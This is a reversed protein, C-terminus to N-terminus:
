RRLLSIGECIGNARTNFDSFSHLSFLLFFRFIHLLVLFRINSWKRPAPRAPRAHPLLMSRSPRLLWVGFVNRCAFSHFSHRKTTTLSRSSRRRPRSANTASLARLNHRRCRRSIFTHGYSTSSSNANSYTVSAFFLSFLFWHSAFISCWRRRRRRWRSRTHSIIRQCTACMCRPEDISVTRVVRARETHTDGYNIARRIRYVASKGNEREEDRWKEDGRDGDNPQSFRKNHASQISEHLIFRVYLNLELKLDNPAKPPQRQRRKAHPVKERDTEWNRGPCKWWHEIFVCQVGCRAVVVATGTCWFATSRSHPMSLVFVFIQQFLTFANRRRAVASFPFFFFSIRRGMGVVHSHTHTHKTLTLVSELVGSSEESRRAPRLAHQSCLLFCFILRVFSGLLFYYFDRTKETSKGNM